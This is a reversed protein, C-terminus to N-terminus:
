WFKYYNCWIILDNDIQTTFFMDSHSGITTTDSVSWISLGLTNKCTLAYFLPIELKNVLFTFTESTDWTKMNEIVWTIWNM